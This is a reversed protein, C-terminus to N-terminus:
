NGKQSFSLTRENIFLCELGSSSVAHNSKIQQGSPTELALGIGETLRLGVACGGALAM